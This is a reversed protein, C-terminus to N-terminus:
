MWRQLIWEPTTPPPLSEREKKMKQLEGLMHTLPDDPRHYIIEATLKQINMSFLCYKCNKTLPHPKAHWCSIENLESWFEAWRNSRRLPYLMNLLWVPYSSKLVQLCIVVKCPKNTAIAHINVRINSFSVISHSSSILDKTKDMKSPTM